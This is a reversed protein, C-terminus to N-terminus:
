EIPNKAKGTKVVNLERIFINGEYYYCLSRYIEVM